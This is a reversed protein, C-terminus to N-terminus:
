EPLETLYLLKTLNQRSHGQETKSDRTHDVMSDDDMSCVISSDYIDGMSYASGHRDDDMSYGHTSGDM